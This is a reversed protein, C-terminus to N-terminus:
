RFQAIRRRAEQVRTQLEPDADKWLNIFKEYFFRARKPNRTQEYLQGLREYISPLSFEDYQLRHYVPTSLYREYTVIASDTMGASDYVRGSFQFLGLPSQYLSPGDSWTDATKWAVLADNWRREGFAIRAKALNLRDRFWETPGTVTDLREAEFRRLLARARDLLGYAACMEAMASVEYARTPPSGVSDLRAVALEPRHRINADIQNARIVDGYPGFGSIGGRARNLADWEAWLRNSRAIQGKLLALDSQLQIGKVKSEQSGSASASDLLRECERSPGRDCLVNIRMGRHVASANSYVLLLSDAERTKGQNLLSIILDTSPPEGPTWVARLVRESRSYDRRTNLLEGLRAGSGPFERAFLEEYAAIARGRDRAVYYSGEVVLREDRPLRERLRFAHADADSTAQPSALFGSVGYAISATRLLVWASAFQSDIAVAAKLLAVARPFDGEANARSAVTYLELAEFSATTVKALPPTDAVDGIPEGLKIRLRRSVSDAADILKAPSAATDSAVALVTESDAAIVRATVLLASGSRSLTGDLIISAGERRAIERATELGIMESPPRRMRRLANAASEQSMVRVLGSQGLAIRLADAADRALGTDEPAARFDTVVMTRRRSVVTSTSARNAGSKAVGSNTGLETKPLRVFRITSYAALSLALVGAATAVAVRSRVGSTVLIRMGHGRAPRGMEIRTTPALEELGRLVHAASPPRREPEPSLCRNVLRALAQPVEARQSLRGGASEGDRPPEGVLMEFLVCGLAYIDVRADLITTGTAQEPSMYARSGVIEEGAANAPPPSAGSTVLARAVGFDAVVAHGDALLINEPKVDCHVIGSRHAYDLAEAIETGIRLADGLPLTRERMLRARLSEGAVYPTVLYPVGDRAGSDILPLVHPHALQATIQIERLFSEVGASLVLEPRMMKVAVRRDHRPDRALYVRAMGGRGLEREVRWGRLLSDPSEATSGPRAPQPTADAPAGDRIRAILARTEAAPEAEFEAALRRAFAEYALLAGARDGLRELLELLQRVVREDADSLEVARRACSVATTFNQDRERQEALARACRAAESRLHARTRELWQEFAPDGDVFFGDLLDGRYLSLAEDYRGADVEGRFAAVDSWCVSADIGIEDSGRSAIGVNGMERRLFRVAANLAGRAHADDQEPWFLALLRDRRHFGIPSAAALYALLATRKPQALVTQLERGDDACLEVSGLVRLRLVVPRRAPARALNPPPRKGINM